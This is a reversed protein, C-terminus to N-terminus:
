SSWWTTWIVSAATRAATSSESRYREPRWSGSLDTSRISVAEARTRIDCSAVGAASSSRPRRRCSTSVSSVARRRSRAAPSPSSSPTASSSASRSVRVASLSVSSARQRSSCLRALSSSVARRAAAVAPPSRGSSTRSRCARRSPICSALPGSTWASTPWRTTASTIASQVPMGMPSMILSSACISRSSSPRRVSRMRPWSSASWSIASASRVALAPIRFFSAGMPTNRSAPGDPTPLVSVARARASSSNPPSRKRTEILMLSYWSLWVVLWSM